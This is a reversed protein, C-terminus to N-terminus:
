IEIMVKRYDLFSVTRQSDENGVLLYLQCPYTWLNLYTNKELFTKPVLIPISKSLEVVKFPFFRMIVLNCLVFRKPFYVQTCFYFQLFLSFAIFQVSSDKRILSYFLPFVSGDRM